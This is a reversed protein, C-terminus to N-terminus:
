EYVAVSCKVDKAKEEIIYTHLPQNSQDCGVCAWTNPDEDRGVELSNVLALQSKWPICTAVAVITALLVINRWKM